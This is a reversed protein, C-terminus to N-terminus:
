IMRRVVEKINRYKKIATRIGESYSTNEILLRRFRAESEDKAKTLERIKSIENICTQLEKTIIDLETQLATAKEKDISTQKIIEKLLDSKKSIEDELKKIKSKLENIEDAQIKIDISIQRRDQVYRLLDNISLSLTSFDNKIRQCLESIDKADKLLEISQRYPNELPSSTALLSVKLREFGTIRSQLSQRQLDIENIENNIAKITSDAEKVSKDLRSIEDNILSLENNITEKRSLADNIEQITKEYQENITEVDVTFKFSKAKAELKPIANKLEAIIQELRDQEAYLENLRSKRDALALQKKAKEIEILLQAKESELDESHSKLIEIERASNEDYQSLLNFDSVVKESKEDISKLREM